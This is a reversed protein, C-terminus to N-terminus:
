TTKADCATVVAAVKATIKTKEDESTADFETKCDTSNLVADDIKKLTVEEAEEAAYTAAILFMAAFMIAKM